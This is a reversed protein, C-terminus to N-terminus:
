CYSPVEKISNNYCGNSTDPVIGSNGNSAHPVIDSTGSSTGPVIGSTGNSTSAVIGSNANSTARVSGSTGNSTSHITITELAGGQVLESDSYSTHNGNLVLEFGVKMRIYLLGQGYDGGSVIGQGVLKKM